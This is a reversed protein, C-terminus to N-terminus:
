RRSYGPKHFGNGKLVVGIGCSIQKVLPSKCEKCLFQMTHNVGHDIETVAGCEPCKYDYNPM